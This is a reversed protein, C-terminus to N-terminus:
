TLGSDYHAPFSQSVKSLAEATDECVEISVGEIKACMVPLDILARNRESAVIYIFDYPTKEQLEIISKGFEFAEELDMDIEANHHDVILGRGFPPGNLKALEDLISKREPYAVAGTTEAFVLKGHSTVKYSM